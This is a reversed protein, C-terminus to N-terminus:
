EVRHDVLDDEVARIHVVANSERVTAVDDRRPRVIGGRGDGGAICDLDAPGGVARHHELFSQRCKRGRHAGQARDVNTEGVFPADPILVWSSAACRLVRERRANRAAPPAAAPARMIPTSGTRAAIRTLRAFGTSTVINTKRPPASPTIGLAKLSQYSLLLWFTLILM